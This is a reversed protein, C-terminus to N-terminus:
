PEITDRRESTESRGNRDDIRYTRRAVDRFLNAPDADSGLVDLVLRASDPIRHGPKDIPFNSAWMTRESGFVDHLHRILLAGDDPHGGLMPMGLGSHKAVVNGFEALAAIDDRWQRLIRDRDAPTRGTDRGRPAFAGVPTAYHDLVFTTEPFERALVVADPLQHAFVWIEFSLDRAAVEAFGRLFEPSSLVGPATSFDRVGRDPHNTASFRIGRFLPSAALHADLVGAISSSRPDAHGVIADLRPSGDSGFPLGAVWRTEDVSEWPTAAHWSAEVHVVTSVDVSDADRRYDAPLYPKLVHHPEGVFERDAQPLAYKLLRPIRPLPRLLRAQTSVERPTRYPDWQHIHPDIVGAPLATRNM